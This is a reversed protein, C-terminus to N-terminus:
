AILATSAHKAPSKLALRVPLTLLGSEEARESTKLEEQSTLLGSEEARNPSTLM